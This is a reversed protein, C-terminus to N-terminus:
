TESNELSKVLYLGSEEDYGYIIVERGKAVSATGDAVRAILYNTTGRHELMVQGVKDDLEGSRVVATKGIVPDKEEDKLKRFLPRLPQTLLKTALAGGVLSALAIVSPGLLPLVLNGIMAFMWLLVLFVSLVLMVPVDTANFFQMVSHLFGGSQTSDGESLEGEVDVSAEAETEFDADLFDLDAIGVLCLLWYLAVPVLLLSFPLVGPSIAMEWVEKVVNADLRLGSHFAM